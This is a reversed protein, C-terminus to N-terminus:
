QQVAHGHYPQVEGAWHSSSGLVPVCDLETRRKVSHHTYKSQEEGLENPQISNFRQNFLQMSHTIDSKLCQSKETKGM